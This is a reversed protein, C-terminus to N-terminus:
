TGLNSVLSNQQPLFITVGARFDFIPDDIVNPNRSKFVWWLASDGYLDSALLDPRYQYISNITFTVDDPLKSVPRYVLLDLFRGNGFTNTKYYPSKKNYTVNAM